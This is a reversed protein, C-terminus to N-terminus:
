ASPADPGIRRRVEDQIVRGVWVWMAGALAMPGFVLGAAWALLWREKVAPANNWPDSLRYIVDLRGTREATDMVDKSVDAWPGGTPGVYHYDRGDVVFHYRVATNVETRTEGKKGGFTHTELVDAVTRAPGRSLQYQRVGVPVAFAALVTFALCFTCATIFRGTRTKMWRVLFHNPGVHVYMVSNLVTKLCGDHRVERRPM